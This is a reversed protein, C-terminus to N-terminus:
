EEMQRVAKVAEQLAELYDEKGATKKDCHVIVWGKTVRLKQTSRARPKGAGKPKSARASERVERVNAGALVQKLLEAQKKEDQVRALEVVSDYPVVREANRIKERIPEPLSLIKLMQGVWQESKGVLTALERNTNIDANDAKMEELAQALEIATLDERQVNSILSKVRRTKEEEPDGIIVPIQRLGAKKAARWRREGTTLMYQNEGVPVVTPPEVIGVRKISAALEDLGRFQKRENRPDPVISELEVVARGRKPLRLSTSAVNGSRVLDLRSPKKDEKRATNESM